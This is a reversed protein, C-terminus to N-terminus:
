FGITLAYLEIWESPMPEGGQGAQVHREVEDALFSRLYDTAERSLKTSM